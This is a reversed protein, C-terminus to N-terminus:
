GCVNFANAKCQLQYIQSTPILEKVTTDALCKQELIIVLMMMTIMTMMTMMTM